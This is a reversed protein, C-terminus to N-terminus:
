GGQESKVIVQKAFRVDAVWQRGDRRKFVGRQNLSEYIRMVQEPTSANLNDGLRAHLVFRPQQKFTFWADTPPKIELNYQTFLNAPWTKISDVATKLQMNLPDGSKLSVEPMQGATPKICHEIPCSAGNDLLAYRNNLTCIPQYSTFKLHMNHPPIREVAISKIFCYKQCLTQTLNNTDAVVAPDLQKLCTCLEQQFQRSFSPAFALVLNRPAIRVVSRLYWLGASAAVFVCAYLINM